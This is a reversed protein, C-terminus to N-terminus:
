VGKPNQVNGSSRTCPMRLLEPPRNHHAVKLNSVLSEFIAERIRLFSVKRSAEKVERMYEM